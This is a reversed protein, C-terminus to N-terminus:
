RRCHENPSSQRIFRMSHPPCHACRIGSELLLRDNADLRLAAGDYLYVIGTSEGSMQTQEFSLTAHGEQMMDAISIGWHGRTVAGGKPSYDVLCLTGDSEFSIFMSWEAGIPDLRWHGILEDNAPPRPANGAGIACGALLVTMSLFLPLRSRRQGKSGSMRMSCVERTCM